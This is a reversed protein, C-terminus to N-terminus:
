GESWKELVKVRIQWTKVCYVILNMLPPVLLFEEAILIMVLPSMHNTFHHMTALTIMPVYFILVTCIHSMCIKLAKLWQGHSATGLITKLIFVYSVAIFVSGSMICLAVSVGCYFNIRNDSSALKM